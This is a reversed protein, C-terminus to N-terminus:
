LLNDEGEVAAVLMPHATDYCDPSMKTLSECDFENCIEKLKDQKGTQVLKMGLARLTPLDVAPAEKKEKEKKSEKKLEKTATTAATTTTSAASGEVLGAAEALFAEFHKNFLLILKPNM